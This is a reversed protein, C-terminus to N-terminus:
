ARSMAYLPASLSRESLARAPEGEFDLIVFDKGTYLAQGLHYDGHIRIKHTGFPSELLRQEQALIEQEASLVEKAEDRFQEPLQPMKKAILCICAPSRRMWKSIRFAAGDRQIAGACLRITRLPLLRRTCRARANVLLKAKEPYIGGILWEDFLGGASRTANQLDAKRALVREYFRGVCRANDGLRRRREAIASQLLCVVTPESRHSHYEIAGGFAPVGTFARESLFRTVEVDPNVGDELKRYLKLFLKNGFLMSSNSQEAGLVHLLLAEEQSGGKCRLLAAGTTRWSEACVSGTPCSAFSHRAFPRTGFRMTCCLKRTAMSVHWCPTLPPGVISRAADGQAIQVPLPLKPAADTYNVEVFWFRAGDEPETSRAEEPWACGRVTRAKSGFWRWNRIYNAVDGARGTQTARGWCHRCIPRWASLTPVDRKARASQRRRGLALWFHAHPGLTLVYPSKKIAPFCKSQLSGEARLRLFAFSRDPLRHSGRFIRCGSHDGRRSEASLGTGKREGSVPVRDIRTLVGQFEEADRDRPADVLALSSFNRQQNEVNIAEYHYEPDIIIPLYLQQPNAKSFGPM